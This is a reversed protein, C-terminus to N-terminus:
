LPEVEFKRIAGLVVMDGSVYRDISLGEGELTLRGRKLLLVIKDPEYSFLGKITKSILPEGTCRRATPCRCCRTEAALDRFDYGSLEFGIRRM